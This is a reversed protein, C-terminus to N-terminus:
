GKIEYKKYDIGLKDMRGRLTNANMGLIEAVGKPGHIKGNTQELIKLIHGKVVDDLKVSTDTDPKKINILDAPDIYGDVRLILSREIINELERVNGPWSYIMLKYMSDPKLKPTEILKLEKTKKKIFYNILLPIDQKRKRLPPITIPFVNLRFWLDERFINEKIMEELNRNTATIIRIDVTITSVGGVREIEKNQLVRLLKVQALLPLEGVEDLFITGKHAREFKGKKMTEAGTFAGKEHGFLESDILSGPIAGCNVIILPGNKRSSLQHIANAIIDKGVGTEGNLLVPSDTIAVQRAMEITKKLGNNEGIITGKTFHYLEKELYQNDNELIEKIELLKKHQIANSMTITFPKKLIKFLEVHEKNYDADGVLILSGLAKGRKLMRKSQGIKIENILVPQEFTSKEFMLAMVLIPSIGIDHFQLMAKSVPQNLPKNLMLVEPLNNPEWQEFAEKAQQPLPTIIDLKKSSLPTAEAITRMAGLDHEYMQMYMMKVPMYDQIYDLCDSMAEEIKLNGCIRLVAEKFFENKDINM